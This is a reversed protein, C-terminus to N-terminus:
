SLGSKRQDKKVVCDRNINNRNIGHVCLITHTLEQNYVMISQQASAWKWKDQTQSFDNVMMIAGFRLTVEEPAGFFLLAMVMSNFKSMNFRESFSSLDVFMPKNSSKLREFITKFLYIYWIMNLKSTLHLSM